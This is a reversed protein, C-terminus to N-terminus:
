QKGKEKVNEKKSNRRVKEKRSTNMEALIDVYDHFQDISKSYEDKGTQIQDFSVNKFMKKMKEDSINPFREFKENKIKIKHRSLRFNLGFILGSNRNLRSLNM